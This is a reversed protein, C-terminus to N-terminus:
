MQDITEERGVIQSRIEKVEEIAANIPCAAKVQELYQRRADFEAKNKVFLLEKVEELREEEKKVPAAERDM